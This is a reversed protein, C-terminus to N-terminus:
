CCLSIGNTKAHMCAHMYSHICVCLDTYIYIYPSESRVSSKQQALPQDSSSRRQISRNQDLLLSATQYLSKVHRLDKGGARAARSSVICSRAYEFLPIQVFFSDKDGIWCGLAVCAHSHSPRAPIFLFQPSLSAAGCSCVSREDVYVCICSNM